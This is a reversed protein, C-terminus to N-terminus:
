KIKNLRTRLTVAYVYSAIRTVADSDTSVGPAVLRAVVFLAAMELTGYACCLSPECFEFRVRQPFYLMRFLYIILIVAAAVMHVTASVSLAVSLWSSSSVARQLELCISAGGCLGLSVGCTAAPLAPLRGEDAPLVSHQRETKEDEPQEKPAAPMSEGRTEYQLLGLALSRRPVVVAIPVASLEAVRRARYM